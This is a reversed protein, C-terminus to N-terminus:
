RAELGIRCDRNISLHKLAVRAIASCIEFSKARALNLAEVKTKPEAM